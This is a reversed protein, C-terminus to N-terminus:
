TSPKASPVAGTAALGLLTGEFLRRFSFEPAGDVGGGSLTATAHAVGGGRVREFLDLIQGYVEGDDLAFTAEAGSLHALDNLFMQDVNEIGLEECARMIRLAIEGRNAVVLKRIM